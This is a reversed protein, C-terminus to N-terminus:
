GSKLKALLDAAQDPTLKGLVALAVLLLAALWQVYDLTSRAKPGRGTKLDALDRQMTEVTSELRGIARWMNHM